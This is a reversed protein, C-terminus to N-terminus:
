RSCARRPPHPNAPLEWSRRGWCARATGWRPADAIDSCLDRYLAAIAAIVHEYGLSAHNLVVDEIKTGVLDIGLKM